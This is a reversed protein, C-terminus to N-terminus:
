SEAVLISNAIRWGLGVPSLRILWGKGCLGGCAYSVYVVADGTADSYAPASFRVWGKVGPYQKHFTPWFDDSLGLTELPGSAVLLAAEPDPNDVVVAARNRSVFERVVSVDADTQALWLELRERVDGPMCWVKLAADCLPFTRDFVVLWRGAPTGDRTRVEHLIQQQIVTRFIALDRAPTEPSTTLQSVFAFTLVFCRVHM